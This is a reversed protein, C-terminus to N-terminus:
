YKKLPIIKLSLFINGGKKLNNEDLKLKESDRVTYMDTAEEWPLM